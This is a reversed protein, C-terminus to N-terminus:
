LIFDNANNGTDVVAGDAFRRRLVQGAEPNAPYASGEVYQNAGEGWAVADIVVGDADLLAVSNDRALTATSTVQAGVADGFVGESNAWIFYGGAPVTSGNPFTRMSYEGGTSSKKRLKWGGVDVTAANPNYIKVFDNSSSAGAIQVEAIVLGLLPAPVDVTTATATVSVDATTANEADTTATSAAATTSTTTATTPAVVITVATNAASATPVTDVATSVAATSTPVVPVIVSNEARPTGGPVVSTHWGVGDVDRELTQKTSNNGAPWGASANLIDSAKCAEDVVALVAGGNALGGAYVKDAPVDPVADDGRELLFFGGAPVTISADLVISIKGAADLVQWGSVDLASGSINKLEIWERNSAVSGGEGSRPPSGMWAVENFILARSLAATTSLTCTAVLPAAPGSVAVTGTEETVASVAATSSTTSTEVQLVVAPASSVAAKSASASAPASAATTASGAKGVAVSSPFDAGGGAGDGVVADVVSSSGAMLDIETMALGASGGFTDTWSQAVLGAVGVFAARVSETASAPFFFYLFSGMATLAAGLAAFLVRRLQPREDM